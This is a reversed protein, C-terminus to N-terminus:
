EWGWNKFLQTISQADNKNDMPHNKLQKCKRKELKTFRLATSYVYKDSKFEVVEQEQGVQSSFFSLFYPALSKHLWQSM